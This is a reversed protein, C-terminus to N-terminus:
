KTRGLNPRHMFLGRLDPVCRDMQDSRDPLSGLLLRGSAGMRSWEQEAFARLSTAIGSGINTIFPVAPMVDQRSCAELLHTAVVSAHVFDTVQNGLTMPFDEGALAARRLSPWFNGFFQGEGYATFIRGYFFELQCDIAFARLLHYMAVKSAGYASTPELPADPPIETYRRASQGYEHCTGAVVFRRVGVAEALEFLRLSGIVNAELLVNWPVRRPSVGVSALHVVADVGELISSPITALNGLYWEPEFALPIVPLSNCSRRLACVDHGSSLAAALFYSGLFGTGGTLFLKM